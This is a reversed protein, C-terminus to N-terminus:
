RGSSFCMMHGRKYRNILLSHLDKRILEEYEENQLQEMRAAEMEEEGEMGAWRLREKPAEPQTLLEWM